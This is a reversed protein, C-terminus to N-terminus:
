DTGYNIELRRVTRAAIWLVLATVTFLGLIAVLVSPPEAPSMLLRILLPAGPDTPPPVPALSQAYYLVSLKQLAEPLIGNVGEWLLIVIAPVIPNRLLLGSALFVSGYGVCGLAASAAYWFAHSLGQDQWFASLEAPDQRWLMAAYALLVGSAFILVAAILGALYKGGLLVERRVPALFWYHLTKDVMEGRFLNLFIGLCGFFVALRLHFHHIVGAFVSRDRQFDVLLRSDIRQLAGDRFRLFWHRRGDYFEVNRFKEQGNKGRRGFTRDSIPAGTRQLVETDTEGERISELTEAATVQWSSQHHKVQVGSGFFLVAPFLALLYVWWSRRSFFVRRLQLRAITWTQRLRLAVSM